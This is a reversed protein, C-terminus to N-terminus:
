MNYVLVTTGIGVLFSIMMMVGTFPFRTPRQLRDIRQGMVSETATNILSNRDGDMQALDMKPPKDTDLTEGIIIEINPYEKKILDLKKRENISILQNGPLAELEKKANEPM